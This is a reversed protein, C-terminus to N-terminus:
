CFSAALSCLQSEFPASDPLKGKQRRGRLPLWPGNCVEPRGHLRVRHPRLGEKGSVFEIAPRAQTRIYVNHESSADAGSLGEAGTRFKVHGQTRLAIPGSWTALDSLVHSVRALTLRTGSDLPCSIIDSSWTRVTCVAASVQMECGVKASRHSCYRPSVIHQFM